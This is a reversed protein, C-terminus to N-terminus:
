ELIPRYELKYLLKNIRKKIFRAPNGAVIDNHQTSKHVVSGSALVSGDAITVNPLVTVSSAIWVHHGIFIDGGYLEHMESNPNHGLTWVRTYPGIDTDNKIVIKYRRCDFLCYQNIVVRAGIEINWFNLLRSHM